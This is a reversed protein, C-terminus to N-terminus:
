KAGRGERSSASGRRRGGGVRDVREKGVGDGTGIPRIEGISGGGKESEDGRGEGEANGSAEAEAEEGEGEDFEAGAAVAFDAREDPGEADEEEEAVGEEGGFLDLWRFSSYSM